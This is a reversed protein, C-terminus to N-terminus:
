NVHPENTGNQLGKGLGAKSVWSRGSSGERMHEDEGCTNSSLSDSFYGDRPNGNSEAADPCRMETPLAWHGQPKKITQFLFPAKQLMEGSLSGILGWLQAGKGPDGM